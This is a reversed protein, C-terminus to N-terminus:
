IINPISRMQEMKIDANDLFFLAAIGMAHQKISSLYTNLRGVFVRCDEDKDLQQDHKNNFSELLSSKKVYFITMTNNFYAPNPNFECLEFLDSESLNIGTEEAFERVAASKLADQYATGFLEPTWKTPDVLNPNYKREIAGNPNPVTEYGLAAFQEDTLQVYDLHTYFDEAEVTGCPFEITKNELGWRTQEVFITVPNNKIDDDVAIVMVWPKCNLGVPEFTTEKFIKKVVTFVPTELLPTEQIKTM